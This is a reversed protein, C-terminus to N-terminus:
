NVEGRNRFLQLPENCGDLDMTMSDVLSALDIIHLRLTNM